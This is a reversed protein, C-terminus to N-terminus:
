SINEPIVDLTEVRFGVMPRPYTLIPSIQSGDGPGQQADRSCSDSACHYM